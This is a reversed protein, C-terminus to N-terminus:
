SAKEVVLKSLRNSITGRCVGFAKGIDNYSYGSGRMQKMKEIDKNSFSIWRYHKDGSLDVHNERLKKRTEESLKRGWMFSDKGPLSKSNESIKRKHEETHRKGYQHNNKGSMARSMKERTEESHKKGYFHNLKGFMGAMPSAASIAINYDGYGADLYVQEYALTNQPDCYLLVSYEFLNEGYKNYSNQLYNNVHRNKRLARKHQAIRQNINKSSGVYRKGNILNVIQYVGSNNM